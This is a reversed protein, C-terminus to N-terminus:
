ALMIALPDAIGILKGPRRMLLLAADGTFGIDDVGQSRGFDERLEFHIGICQDCGQQM